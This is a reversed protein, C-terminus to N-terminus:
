LKLLKLPQLAGSELRGFPIIKQQNAIKLAIPSWVLKPKGMIEWTKKPMVNVDSGMDLIINEIDYEGIHANIRFERSTRQKKSVQNVDKEVM